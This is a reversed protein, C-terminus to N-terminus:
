AMSDMKRRKHLCNNRAIKAKFTSSYILLQPNKACHDYYTGFGLNFLGIKLELRFIVIMKFM